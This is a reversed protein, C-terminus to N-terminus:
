AAKAVVAAVARVSILRDDVKYNIVGAKRIADALIERMPLCTDLKNMAGKVMLYGDGGAVLFDNTAVRYIKESVLASGDNLCVSVVRHGEPLSQDYKVRLGSFQLMGFTKNYIGYELAAKIQAGTMDLLYLTNDFPMVEYLNGSTIPGAALGTRLGGGNQLAIDAKSSERMVDTVWCGLPSLVYRDHSLEVTAFGLVTRKAPDIEKQSRTVIAKVLPDAVAEPGAVDDVTVTSALVKHCDRAYVLNVRGVDRGNCYAQVVPVGNVKGAVRQHSHGSVVVDIGPVSRALDAAEGSVELGNEGGFSALHALVVIVDAGEAKMKPILSRLVVAPDAFSFGAINKPNTTVATDRTIIGVIGIKVGSREIIVYRKVFDVPQGTSKDIINAALLPFAADGIRKKLVPLGWDFEHNGLAMADFGVSNMFQIVTKGYLLNSDPTGQMMDGASLVITGQPNQSMEGRLYGALVAEGPNKDTMAIAGHFDNVTLVELSVLNLENDSAWAVTGSFLVVLLSLSVIVKSYRNLAM